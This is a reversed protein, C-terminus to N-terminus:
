LSKLVVVFSPKLFKQIHNVYKSIKLRRRISNTKKTIVKQTIQSTFKTLFCVLIVSLNEVFEQVGITREFIKWFYSAHGVMKTTKLM